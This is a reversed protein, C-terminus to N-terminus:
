KTRNRNKLSDIFEDVSISDIIQCNEQISVSLSSSYDFCERPNTPSKNSIPISYIEQTLEPNNNIIDWRPDVEKRADFNRSLENFITYQKNLTRFKMNKRRWIFLNNIMLRVSRVINQKQLNKCTSQKKNSNPSAVKERIEEVIEFNFFNCQYARSFRIRMANKSIIRKENTKLRLWFKTHVSNSCKHCTFLKSNNNLKGKSYSQSFNTSSPNYVVTIRPNINKISIKETNLPTKVVPSFHNILEKFYAEKSIQKTPFWNPLSFLPSSIFQNCKKLCSKHISKACIDCSFLTGHSCCVTCKEDDGLGQDIIPWSFDEDSINFINFFYSLKQILAWRGLDVSRSLFIKWSRGFEIDINTLNNLPLLWPHTMIHLFIGKKRLKTFSYTHSFQFNTSLSKRHLKSCRRKPREIAGTSLRIFDNKGPQAIEWWSNHPLNFNCCERYNQLGYWSFSSVAYWLPPDIPFKFSKNCINSTRITSDHIEIIRRKDTEFINYGRQLVKKSKKKTQGDKWNKQDEIIKERLGIFAKFSYKNYQLLETEDQNKNLSERSKKKKNPIPILYKSFELPKNIKSTGIKKRCNEFNCGCELLGLYRNSAEYKKNDTPICISMLNEYDITIESGKELDKLAFIGMKLWSITHDNEVKSKQNRLNPKSIWVEAQSNPNCSHRIHRAENGIQTMDLYVFNEVLSFLRRPITAPKEYNHNMIKEDSFSELNFYNHYRDRVDADILVEGLCEIILEGKSVKDLLILRTFQNNDEFNGMSSSKFGRERFSRVREVAYKKVKQNSLRLFPRNNCYVDHLRDSLGCISRNCEQHNLRNFCLDACFKECSCKESNNILPILGTGFELIRKSLYKNDLFFTNDLKSIDELNLAREPNDSNQITM